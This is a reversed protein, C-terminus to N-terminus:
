GSIDRAPGGLVPTVVQDDFQTALTKQDTAALMKLSRGALRTAVRALTHAHVKLESAVDSWSRSPVKRGVAHLM